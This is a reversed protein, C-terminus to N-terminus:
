WRFLDRPSILGHKGSFLASAARRRQLERQAAVLKAAYSPAVACRKELIESLEARSVRGVCV